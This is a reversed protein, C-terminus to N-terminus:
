GTFYFVVVEHIVNASLPTPTKVQQLYQKAQEMWGLSLYVTALLKTTHGVQAVIMMAAQVILDHLSVTSPQSSKVICHVVGSKPCERM